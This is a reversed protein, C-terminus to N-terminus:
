LDFSSRILLSRVGPKLMRIVEDSPSGISELIQLQSKSLKSLDCTALYIKDTIGPIAKCCRRYFDSLSPAYEPRMGSNFISLCVRIVSEPAEEPHQLYVVKDLYERKFRSELKLAVDSWLEPDTKYAYENIYRSSVGSRFFVEKKFLNIDFATAIHKDSFGDRAFGYKWSETLSADFYFPDIGMVSYDPENFRNLIALYISKYKDFISNYSYRESATLSDGIQKEVFLKFPIRLLEFDVGDVAHRIAQYSMIMESNRFLSEKTEHDKLKFAKSFTDCCEEVTSRSFDLQLLDNIDADLYKGPLSASGTRLASLMHIAVLANRKVSSLLPKNSGVISPVLDHILNACGAEINQCLNEIKILWDPDAVLLLPIGTDLIKSYNIIPIYSDLFHSGYQRPKLTGFADQISKSEPLNLLCWSVIGVDKGAFQLFKGLVRQNGNLWEAMENDPLHRNSHVSAPLATVHINFIDRLAIRKM